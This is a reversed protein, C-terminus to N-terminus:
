GTWQFLMISFDTLNVKKDGNIDAPPNSTGGDTNWWFLLISFDTLNVKGDRNLDASSPRDAAQGVGYYTYNSFGTSLVGDVGVARARIKYTGNSFGNTDISLSWAGSGDSQATFSKRSATNKDRETEITITANPLAYGTVALAQGSTVPDPTVKISPALNVNGLATTRAGTVTFSTSFTSSRVQNGDLAYIGFTYVGRAISEIAISFSGDSGASASKAEAGDVLAVVRSRPFAFGSIVM